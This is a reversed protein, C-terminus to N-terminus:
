GREREREEAKMTGIVLELLNHILLLGFLGPSRLIGWGTACPV